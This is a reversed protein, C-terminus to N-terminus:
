VTPIMAFGNSIYAFRDYSMEMIKNKAHKGDYSYYDYYDPNYQGDKDDKTNLESWAFYNTTGDILSSNFSIFMYDKIAKIISTDDIAHLYESVSPILNKYKLSLIYYDNNLINLSIKKAKSSTKYQRGSKDIIAIGLDFHITYMSRDIKKSRWKSFKFLRKFKNSPIVINTCSDYTRFRLLNRNSIGYSCREYFSNTSSSVVIKDDKSEYIPFFSLNNEYINKENDDIGPINSLPASKGFVMELIDLSANIISDKEVNSIQNISHISPDCIMSKITASPDEYYTKDNDIIGTSNCITIRKVYTKLPFYFQKNNFANFIDANVIKGGYGMRKYRYSQRNSMKEYVRLPRKPNRTTRIIPIWYLM